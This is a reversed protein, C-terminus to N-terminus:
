AHARTHIQLGRPIHRCALTSCLAMDLEEAPPVQVGLALEAAGPQILLYASSLRCERTHSLSGERGQCETFEILAHILFIFCIQCSPKAPSLHQRPPETRQTHTLKVALPFTHTLKIAPPPNTLLRAMGGLPGQETAM